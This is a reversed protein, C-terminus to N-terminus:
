IRYKVRITQLRQLQAETLELSDWSTALRKKTKGDLFMVTMSFRPVETLADLINLGDEPGTKMIINTTNDLISTLLRADLSSKFLKPM